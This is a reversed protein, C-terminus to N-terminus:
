SLGGPRIGPVTATARQDDQAEASPCAFLQPHVVGLAALPCYKADTAVRFTWGDAVIRRETCAVPRGLNARPCGGAGDPGACQDAITAEDQAYIFVRITGASGFPPKDRTPEAMVTVVARHLQALDLFAMSLDNNALDNLLARVRERLEPPPGEASIASLGSAVTEQRAALGATGEEPQRM